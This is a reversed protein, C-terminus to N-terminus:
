VDYRLQIWQNYCRMLVIFGIVLPYELELVLFATAAEAEPERVLALLADSVAVAIVVVGDALSIDMGDAFPLPLTLSAVVVTLKILLPTSYQVCSLQESLAVNPLHISSPSATAHEACAAFPM